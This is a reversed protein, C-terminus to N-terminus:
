ETKDKKVDEEKDERIYKDVYDLMAQEGNIVFFNGGSERIWQEWMVQPYTQKYYTENKFEIFHITKRKRNFVIRDPFGINSRPHGKVAKVDYLKCFRLFQAELHKESKAM